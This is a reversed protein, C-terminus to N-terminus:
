EISVMKMTKIGYDTVLQYYLIGSSIQLDNKNITWKNPGKNFTQEQSLVVKGSTDLINM